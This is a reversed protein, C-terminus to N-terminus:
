VEAGESCSLCIREQECGVRCKDESACAKHRPAFAIPSWGEGWCSGFSGMGWRRSVLVGQSMGLELLRPSLLAVEWWVTRRGACVLPWPFTLMWSKDKSEQVRQNPPSVLYFM